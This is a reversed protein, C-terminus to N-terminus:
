AQRNDVGGGCSTMFTDQCSHAREKKTGRAKRVERTSKLNKAAVSCPPVFNLFTDFVASAEENRVMTLRIMMVIRPLAAVGEDM